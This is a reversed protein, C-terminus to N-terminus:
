SRAFQRSSRNVVQADVRFAAEQKGQLGNAFFIRQFGLISEMLGNESGANTHGQFTMCALYCANRHTWIPVTNCSGAGISSCFDPICFGAPFNLSELTM